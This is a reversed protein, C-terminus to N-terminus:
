QIFTVTSDEYNTVAVYTGSTDIGIPGKGVRLTQTEQTNNSLDRKLITVTNDAGNAVFIDYRQPSVAGTAPYKIGVGTPNRGVTVTSLVKHSIGDIEMVTNINQNTVFCRPISQIAAAGIPYNTFGSITKVVQDTASDIVSVTNSGTNTVFVFTRMASPDWRAAVATPFSGIGKTITAVTKLTRQNIVTVSNDQANAIYAKSTGPVTTAVGHPIKGVPITAIVKQAYEDYISVTNDRQNTIYLHSVSTQENRSAHAIAYPGKGVAIQSIEKMGQVQVKSITSGGYNAVYGGSRGVGIPNRGVKVTGIVKYTHTPPPAGQSDRASLLLLPSLLSLLLIHRQAHMTINWTPPSLPFNAVALKQTSRPNRKEPTM